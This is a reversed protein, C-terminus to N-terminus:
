LGLNTPKIYSDDSYIKRTIGRQFTLIERTVRYALNQYDITMFITWEKAFVTFHMSM